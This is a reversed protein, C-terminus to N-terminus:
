HVFGPPLSFDRQFRNSFRCTRPNAHGRPTLQARGAGSPSSLWFWALSKGVSAMQDILRTSIPSEFRFNRTLISIAAFLTQAMPPSISIDASGLEAREGM